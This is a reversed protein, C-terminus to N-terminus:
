LECQTQNNSRRRLMKFRQTVMQRHTIAKVYYSKGHPGPRKRISTSSLPVSSSSALSATTSKHVDQAPVEQTSPELLVVATGVGTSPLFSDSTDPKLVPPTSPKLNVAFTSTPKIDISSSKNTTQNFSPQLKIKTETKTDNKEISEPKNPKTENQIKVNTSSIDFSPPLSASSSNNTVKIQTRNVKEIYSNSSNFMIPKEPKTMSEKSDNKTSNIPVIQEPLPVGSVFPRLVSPPQPPLSLPLDFPYPPPDRITQPLNTQAPIPSPTPPTEEPPDFVIPPLDTIRPPGRNNIRTRSPFNPKGLPGNTNVQVQVNGNLLKVFGNIIEQIDSNTKRDDPNARAMPDTSITANSDSKVSDPKTLPLSRGRLSAREGEGLDTLLMMDSKSIDDAGDTIFKTKTPKIQNYYNFGSIEHATEFIMDNTLRRTEMELDNKPEKLDINDDVNREVRHVTSSYSTINESKAKISPIVVPESPLVSFDLDYTEKVFEEPNITKEHFTFAERGTTIKPEKALLSQKSQHYQKDEVFNEDDTFLFIDVKIEHFFNVRKLFKERYERKTSNSICSKPGVIHFYGIHCFM